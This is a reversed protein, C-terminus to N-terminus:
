DLAAAQYPRVPAAKLPKHQDILIRKTEASAATLKAVAEIMAPSQQLRTDTIDIQVYRLWRGKDEPPGKFLLLVKDWFSHYPTNKKAVTNFTPFLAAPCVGRPNTVYQGRGDNMFIHLGPLDYFANQLFTVGGATRKALFMDQKCHPSVAKLFNPDSYPTVHALDVYQFQRTGDATQYYEDYGKKGKFTIDEGETLTERIFDAFIKKGCNTSGSISVLVPQQPMKMFDPDLARALLRSIDLLDDRSTTILCVTHPSASLSYTTKQLREATLPLNKDVM